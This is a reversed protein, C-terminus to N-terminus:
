IEYTLTVEITLPQQEGGLGGAGGGSPFYENSYLYSQSADSVTTIRGLTLGLTTATDKAKAQAATLAQARVQKRITELDSRRFRSSMQTVGADAAAEMLPAVQDFARTTATITVEARFGDLVSHGVVDTRYNPALGITSLALDKDAVGKKKLAALVADERARAAALADSPRPADAEVTLTLDACDPTVAITATGVATLATQHDGSGAHVVISPPTPSCAAAPTALAAALLLTRLRTM